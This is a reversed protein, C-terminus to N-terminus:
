DCELSKKNRNTKTLATYPTCSVNVILELIGYGFFGKHQQEVEMEPPMRLEWDTPALRIKIVCQVSLRSNDSGALKRRLVMCHIVATLTVKVFLFHSFHSNVQFRFQFHLFNFLPRIVQSIPRNIWTPNTNLFPTIFCFNCPNSVGLGSIQGRLGM